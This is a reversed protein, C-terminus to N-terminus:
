RLGVHRERGVEAIGNGAQRWLAAYRTRQLQATESLSYFLYVIACGSVIGAMIEGRSTASADLWAFVTAFAVLVANLCTMVWEGSGPMGPANRVAAVRSFWGSTDSAKEEFEELYASIMRVDRRSHLMAYYGTAAALIVPLFMGPHRAAIAWSLTSTSVLTAATWCLMGTREADRSRSMLAAYEASGASDYTSM